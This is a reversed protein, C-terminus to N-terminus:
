NQNTEDTTTEDKLEENKDNPAVAEQNEKIFEDILIRDKKDMKFFIIAMVIVAIILIALGIYWSTYVFFM